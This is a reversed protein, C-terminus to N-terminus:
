LAVVRLVEVNILTVVVVVALLTDVLFATLGNLLLRLLLVVNGLLLNALLRGVHDRGGWAVPCHGWAWGVLAHVAARFLDVDGQLLSPWAVRRGGLAVLVVFLVAAVLALRRPRLQM